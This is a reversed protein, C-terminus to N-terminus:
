RERMIRAPGHNYIVSRVPAVHRTVTSTAGESSHFDFIAAPSGFNADVGGAPPRLDETTTSTRASNEAVRLLTRVAQYRFSPDRSPDKAPRQTVGDDGTTESLEGSKETDFLRSHRHIPQQTDHLDPDTSADNVDRTTKQVADVVDIAYQIEGLGKETRSLGRLLKQVVIYDGLHAAVGLAGWEPKTGEATGVDRLLKLRVIGHTSADECAWSVVADDVKNTGLGCASRQLLISATQRYREGGAIDLATKGDNTTAMIDDPRMHDLLLHVRERMGNMAAVHLVTMGLRTRASTDAGHRLLTQMIEWLEPRERASRLLLFNAMSAYHLPSYGGEFEALNLLARGRASSLLIKVVSAGGRPSTIAAHLVSKGNEMLILPDAHSELLIEVIEPSAYWCASYLATMGRKNQKNIDAGNELLVKVVSLPGGKAASQLPTTDTPGGQTNVDAGENLLMQVVDPAKNSNSAWSLATRGARDRRDVVANARLLTMVIRHHGMRAAEILATAERRGGVADADVTHSILHKVALYSGSRAVLMLPTWGKGTRREADANVPYSLLLEVVDFVDNDCAHHLPTYGQSDPIDMDIHHQIGHECLDKAPQAYSFACALHLATYLRDNQITSDAGATLLAKAADTAGHSAALHLATNKSGWMTFLDTVNVANIQEESLIDLFEAITQTQVNQNRVLHHLPMDGDHDRPCIDADPSIARLQSVIDMVGQPAEQSADLLDDQLSAIREADTAKNSVEGASTDPPQVTTPSADAVSKPIATTETTEKSEVGADDRSPDDSNPTDNAM